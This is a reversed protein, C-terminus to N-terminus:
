QKTAQLKNFYVTYAMVFGILVHKFKYEYRKTFTKTEIATYM